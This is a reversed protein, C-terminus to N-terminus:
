GGGPAGLRPRTTGAPLGSSVVLSMGGTSRGCPRMSGPAELTMENRELAERLVGETDPVFRFRGQALAQRTGRGAEIDIAEFECWLDYTFCLAAIASGARLLDVLPACGECDMEADVFALRDFKVPHDAAHTFCGDEALGVYM